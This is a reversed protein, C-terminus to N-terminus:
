YCEVRHRFHMSCRIKKNERSMRYCINMYPVFVSRM